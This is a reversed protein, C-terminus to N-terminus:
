LPSVAQNSPLSHVSKMDAQKNLHVLKELLKIKTRHAEQLLQLQRLQESAHELQAELSSARAQLSAILRESLGESSQQRLRTCDVSLFGTEWAICKKATVFATM